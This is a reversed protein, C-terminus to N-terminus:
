RGTIVPKLGALPAIPASTVMLPVFRFPAVVTLNEPTLVAVNVLMEFRCTVAMTGAPAPVPGILMVVELPDPWLAALKVTVALGGGLSLKLLRTAITPAIWVTVPEFM